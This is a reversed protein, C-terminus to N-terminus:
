QFIDLWYAERSFNIMLHIKHLNGNSTFFGDPYPMAAVIWNRNASQRTRVTAHTRIIMMAGHKIRMEAAASRLCPRSMSSLLARVLLLLKSIVCCNLRNTCNWEFTLSNLSYNQLLCIKNEVWNLDFNNRMEEIELHLNTLSKWSIIWNENM